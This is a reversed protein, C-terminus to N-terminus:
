LGIDATRFSGSGLYPSSVALLGELYYPSIIDDDDIFAIYEGKAKDLGINRANSVSAVDSYMLRFHCEPHSAIFEELQSYFPAKPGNLIVLVEYDASLLTQNVISTLCNYIYEGPSYTPIIVSVKM